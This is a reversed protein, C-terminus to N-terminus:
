RKYQLSCLRHWNQSDALTAEIREISEALDLQMDDELIKLLPKVLLDEQRIKEGVSPPLYNTVYSFPTAKMFRVREVRLIKTGKPLRLSDLVGNPIDIWGFNLIKTKTLLGWMIMDDISGSLKSVNFSKTQNSVFTGKGRNRLIIGDKELNSLAQRVTIRSVGYELILENESPLQGTAEYEGSAIKNRLLTELQYYLPIGKLHTGFFNKM